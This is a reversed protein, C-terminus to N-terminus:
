NSQSVVAVDAATIAAHIVTDLDLASITSPEPPLNKDTALQALVAPLLQLQDYAFGVDEYWLTLADHRLYLWEEYPQQIVVRQKGVELRSNSYSGTTPM